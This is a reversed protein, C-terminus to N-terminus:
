FSWCHSIPYPKPDHPILQGSSHSSASILRKPSWSPRSSPAELCYFSDQPFIQVFVNIIHLLHLNASFYIKLKRFALVSLSNHAMVLYAFDIFYLVNNRMCAIHLVLLTYYSNGLPCYEGDVSNTM